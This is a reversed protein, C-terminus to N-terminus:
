NQGQNKLGYKIISEIYKIETGHWAPIWNKAILNYDKKLYRQSIIFKKAVIEGEYKVDIIDSVLGKNYLKFFLKM